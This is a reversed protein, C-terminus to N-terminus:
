FAFCNAAKVSEFRVCIIRGASVLFVPDVELTFFTTKVFVGLAFTAVKGCVDSDTVGAV